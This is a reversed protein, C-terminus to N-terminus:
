SLGRIATIVATIGTALGVLARFAGLLLGSALRGLSDPPISASATTANGLNPGGFHIGGSVTAGSGMVGVQARDRATYTTTSGGDRGARSQDAVRLTPVLGALDDGIRAVGSEYDKVNLRLSNIEALWRLETPLERATLRPALHRRRKGRGPAYSHPRDRLRNAPRFPVLEAAMGADATSESHRYHTTATRCLAM